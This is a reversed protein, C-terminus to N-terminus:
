PTCRAPHQRLRLAGDPLRGEALAAPEASAVQYSWAYRGHFRHRFRAEVRTVAARQVPAMEVWGRAAPRVTFVTREGESATRARVDARHGGFTAIVFDYHALNAFGVESTTTVAARGREAWLTVV